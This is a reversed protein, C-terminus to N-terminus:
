LEYIHSTYHIMQKETWHGHVYSFLENLNTTMIELFVYLVNVHSDFFKLTVKALFFKSGFAGQIGMYGTEM